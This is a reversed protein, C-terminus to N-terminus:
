PRPAKKKAFTYFLGASLVPGVEYFKEIRSLKIGGTLNFRYGKLFKISLGGELSHYFTSNFYTNIYFSDLAFFHNYRNGQLLFFDLHDSSQVLYMFSLSTFVAKEKVEKQSFYPSASVLISFRSPSWIYALGNGSAEGIMLGLQHKSREQIMQSYSTNFIGCFLLILSISRM